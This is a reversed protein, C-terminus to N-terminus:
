KTDLENNGDDIVPFLDNQLIAIFGKLTNARLEIESEKFNPLYHIKQSIQNLYDKLVKAEELSQNFTM